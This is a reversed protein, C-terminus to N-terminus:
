QRELKFGMFRRDTPELYANRSFRIIISRIPMHRVFCGSAACWQQLAVAAKGGAGDAAVMWPTARRCIWQQMLQIFVVSLELMPRWFKQTGAMALNSLHKWTWIKPSFWMCSREKKSQPRCANCVIAAFRCGALFSVHKTPRFGRQQNPLKAKQAGIETWWHLQLSKHLSMKAQQWVNRFYFHHSLHFVILQEMWLMWLFLVYLLCVAQHTASSRRTLSCTLKPSGKTHQGCGPDRVLLNHDQIHKQSGTTNMLSRVFTCANLSSWDGM